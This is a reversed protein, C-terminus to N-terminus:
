IFELHSDRPRRLLHHRLAPEADKHFCSFSRRRVLPPLQPHLVDERHGVGEGHPGRKGDDLAHRLSRLGHEGRPRRAGEVNEADGEVPSGLRPAASKPECHHNTRRVSPHRLLRDGRCEGALHSRFPFRLVMNEEVLVGTVEGTELSLFAVNGDRLCALTDSNPIFEVQGGTYSTEQKKAVEWYKSLPKASQKYEMRKRQRNGMASPTESKTRHMRLLKHSLTQTSFM